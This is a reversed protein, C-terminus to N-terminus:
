LQKQATRVTGTNQLDIRELKSMLIKAERIFDDRYQPDIPSSTPLKVTLPNMHRDNVRFEYHLHPGTAWGTTGVYGIIDGQQVRNGTRIDKHFRNLHAYLTKFRIGHRLIITKGYGNKVGAFIVKGDGTSRVPTNMPAGYDVGNHPQWVKKIPHLRRKSFNSTVRAFKIPSRLFSSQTGEGEPTYYIISGNEELHRVARFRRGNAILEAAVIQGYDIRKGDLYHEEYVIRFEDGNRIDRAMDVQWGMINALSYLIGKPINSHRASKLLSGQIIAGATRHRIEPERKVIDAVYTGDLRRVLLTEYVDLQLKLKELRPNDSEDSTTTVQIKQGPHLVNLVSANELKVLALAERVGFGLRDMIHTLTDKKRVTESIWDGQHLAAVLPDPPTEPEAPEGQLLETLAPPSEPLLIPAISALQLKSSSIHAAIRPDSEEMTAPAAISNAADPIRQIAAAPRQPLHPTQPESQVTIPIPPTLVATSLLVTPDTNLPLQDATEPVSPDSVTAEDSSPMLTAVESVDSYSATIPLSHVSVLQSFMALLCVVVLGVFVIWGTRPIGAAHPPSVLDKLDIRLIPRPETM